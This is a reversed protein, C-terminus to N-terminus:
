PAGSWAAVKQAFLSSAMVVPHWFTRSGLRGHPDSASSRLLVAPSNISNIAGGALVYHKAIIKIATQARGSQALARNPALNILVQLGARALVSLLQSLEAQTHPPLAQVLTDVRKLLTRRQM